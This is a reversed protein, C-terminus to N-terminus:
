EFRCFVFAGPSKAFLDTDSPFLTVVHCGVKDQSYVIFLKNELYFLALSTLFNM